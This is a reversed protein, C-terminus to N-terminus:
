SHTVCGHAKEHQFPQSVGSASQSVNSTNFGKLTSPAQKKTALCLVLERTEPDILEEGQIALRISSTPVNSYGDCINKGHMITELQCHSRTIGTKAQLRVGAM